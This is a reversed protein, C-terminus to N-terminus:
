QIYIIQFVLFFLGMFRYLDNLYILYNIERIQYYSSNSTFSIAQNFKGTVFTVNVATGILHLPGSDTYSDNDFSYWCVLTADDLIESSNKSRMTLLVEDIDSLLNFM